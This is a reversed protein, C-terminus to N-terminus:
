PNYAIETVFVEKNITLAATAMSSNFPWEITAVVASCRRSAPQLRCTLTVRYYSLTSDKTIFGDPDFYLPSTATAIKLDIPVLPTAPNCGPYCLDNPQCPDTCIKVVGANGNRLQTFLDQVITAVLSNDAANRASHLAQPLLGIVALLGVAIVAIALSMEVLSFAECNRRSRILFRFNM